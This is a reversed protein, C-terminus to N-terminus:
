SDFRRLMGAGSSLWHLSLKTSMTVIELSVHLFISRPRASMYASCLLLSPSTYGLSTFSNDLYICAPFLAVGGGGCVYVCSDDAFYIM